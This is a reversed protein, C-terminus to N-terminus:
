RGAACRQRESRILHAGAPVGDLTFRGDKDVRANPQPGFRSQDTSPATIRVQTSTPCRADAGAAFSSRAPSADRGGSLVVTVDDLDGGDVRSRSRRSSRRRPTTAARACCTAARRCTPSRSRATGSSAAATTSASRGAARRRRTRRDPERQREDDGHRRSQDRPRQHAVHARAAPQFRHRASGPQAGVRSRGRKTRGVHRRSLLDARVNSRSRITAARRAGVVAAADPSGGAAGASPRQRGAADARGARGGVGLIAARRANVYYDGPMLGWVRYQGSTTPRRPAPRRRAPSRGAPVSLADRAGDRGADSRRRRRARPRRHRQRAAPPLRRREAAPRRRAAAAHRGAAAAAPRLVLSVFGSKSVTLTYRGAPLETFEFM